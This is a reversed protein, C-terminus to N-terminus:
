LVSARCIGKWYECSFSSFSAAQELVEEGLSAVSREQAQFILSFVDM